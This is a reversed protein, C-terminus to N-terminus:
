DLTRPWPVVVDAYAFSATAAAADPKRQGTMAKSKVGVVSFLPEFEQSAAAAAFTSCVTPAVIEIVVMSRVPKVFNLRGFRQSTEIEQNVLPPSHSQAM